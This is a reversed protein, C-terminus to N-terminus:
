EYGRPDKVRIDAPHKPGNVGGGANTTVAEIDAVVENPANSVVRNDPANLVSLISYFRADEDDNTSREISTTNADLSDILDLLKRLTDTAKMFM